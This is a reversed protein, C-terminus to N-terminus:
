SLQAYGAPELAEAEPIGRLRKGALPDRLVLGAFSTLMHAAKTYPISSVFALAVLGHSWWGIHRLVSMADDSVGTAIWGQAAVWGAPSYTNYGPSDMAIRIGELAYGTVVLYLLSGVFVWDGIRYTAREQAPDDPARDPRTYDLKRPRIVARRLMMMLVGILLALGLVDLVVSYYLYFDGQFFRWGFLPETIDTNIGLIVTGIFLVVFGYFIGRHAWGAFHDRRRISSHAVLTKTANRLRGPLERLPPFHGGGRRYKSIPRAVGYAFVLVSVVALLYWLAEAWAPMGWFIERTKM